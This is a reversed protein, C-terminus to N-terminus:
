MVCINPCKRLTLWSIKRACVQRNLRMWMNLAMFALKGVASSCAIDIFLHRGLVNECVVDVRVEREGTEGTCSCTAQGQSYKITFFLPYM